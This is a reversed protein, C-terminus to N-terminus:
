VVIQEVAPRDFGARDLTRSAAASDGNMTETLTLKKVGVNGALSTALVVFTIWGTIARRRHRASWRGMRAAISTRQPKM